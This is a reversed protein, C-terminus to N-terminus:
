WSSSVECTEVHWTKESAKGGTRSILAMNIMIDSFWPDGEIWQAIMNVMNGGKFNSDQQNWWTEDAMKLRLVTKKQQGQFAFYFTWGGLLIRWFAEIEVMKWWKGMLTWGNALDLAALPRGHGLEWGAVARLPRRTQQRVASLRQGQPPAGARPSFPNHSFWPHPGM